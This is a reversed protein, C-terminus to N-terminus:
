AMKKTRYKGKQVVNQITRFRERLNEWKDPHRQLLEYIPHNYKKVSDTIAANSISPSCHLGINKGTPKLDLELVKKLAAEYKDLLQEAKAFRGISKEPISAAPETGGEKERLLLNYRNLVIDKSIPSTNLALQISRNLVTEVQIMDLSEDLLHQVGEPLISITRNHLESLSRLRHDIFTKMNQKHATKALDQNKYLDNMQQRRLEEQQELWNLVGTNQKWDAIFQKVTLRLHTGLMSKEVQNLNRIERQMGYNATSLDFEVILLGRYEDSGQIGLVLHNAHEVDTLYLQVTERQTQGYLESANKWM